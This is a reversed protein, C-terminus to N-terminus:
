TCISSEHTFHSRKYFDCILQATYEIQSRELYQHIPLTVLHKAQFEANKLSRSNLGMNKSAPQLHLPVPYHIKAEVGNEVLYRLLQDRHSALIMYLSFTEVFEKPREPIKVHEALDNLLSDLLYANANRRAIFQDVQDLFHGAVVAQLPQLRMNVGWFEIVDRSTMGHNRYKKMWLFKDQDDTVVMGGDGAVNLTKLPHMSFAGVESFTGPSKGRIKGGIGMCADEIVSIGRTQAIDKILSMDPSAGAWHVPLIAKTKKTIVRECDLIDIQYRNDVDVFVPKAGLAVIAGTTAYFSNCPTIIEDGPVVGSARLALILADTGNNTAICYGSGIYNAFREEFDEVFPGLTFEASQLVPRWLNFLTETDQFQQPLYNYPVKFIM